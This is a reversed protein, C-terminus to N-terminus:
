NSTLQKVITHQHRGYMVVFRGYVKCSALSGPSVVWLLGSFAEPPGTFALFTTKQSPSCTSEPIPPFQFRLAVM